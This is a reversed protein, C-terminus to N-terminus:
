KNPSLHNSVKIDLTYRMVQGNNDNNIITTLINITIRYNLM